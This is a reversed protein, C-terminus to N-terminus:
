LDIINSKLRELLEGFEPQRDYYLASTAKYRAEFDSRQEPESLLFAQNERIPIEFDKKPFRAKKHRFYAETGIFNKVETENLLCYLDYYQRM